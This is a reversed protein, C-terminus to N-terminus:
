YTVEVTQDNDVLIIYGKKREIKTSGNWQLNTPKIGAEKFYSQWVNNDIRYIVTYDLDGGGQPEYTDEIDRGLADSIPAGVMNFGEYLEIVATDTPTDGSISILGAAAMDILYGKDKYFRTLTNSPYGPVYTKWEGDEYTIVSKVDSQAELVDEILFGQDTGGGDYNARPISIFNLGTILYINFHVGIEYYQRQVSTTFPSGYNTRFAVQCWTVIKRDIDVENGVGPSAITISKTYLDVSTSPDDDNELHAYTDIRKGDTDIIEQLENIYDTADNGGYTRGANDWCADNDDWCTYGDDWYSERYFKLTGNVPDVAVEESNEPLGSELSSYTLTKQYVHGSETIEISGEERVQISLSRDYGSIMQDNGSADVGNSEQVATTNSAIINALPDDVEHAIKYLAVKRAEDDLYLRVDSIDSHHSGTNDGNAFGYPTFRYGCRGYTNDNPTQKAINYEGDANSYLIKYFAVVNSNGTAGIKVDLAIESQHGDAVDPPYPNPTCSDPPNSPDGPPTIYLYEAM